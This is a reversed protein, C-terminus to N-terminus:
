TGGAEKKLQWIVAVTTESAASFPGDLTTRAGATDGAEVQTVVEAACAHFRAHATVLDQYGPLARFRSGEGYIWNGLECLDDEGIASSQPREGGGADICLALRDKWKLHVAVADDFDM